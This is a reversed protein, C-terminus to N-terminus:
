RSYFEAIFNFDVRFPYYVELYLPHRLFIGRFLDADLFLYIPVVRSSALSFLVSNKVRMEGVLCIVDGVKVLFSPINVKIGNVMIHGHNVLQRSFFMTSAFKLRYVVVDLRRELFSIFDQILDGNRLYARKFLSSFQSETINYYLKLKQKNLFQLSYGKKPRGRKLSLSSFRRSSLGGGRWLDVGFRRSVNSRSFKRSM